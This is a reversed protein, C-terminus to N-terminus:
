RNTKVSDDITQLVNSINQGPRLGKRTYGEVLMSKVHDVEEPHSQFYNSNVWPRPVAVPAVVFSNQNSVIVMQNTLSARPPRNTIAQELLAQLHMMNSRSQEMRAAANTDQGFVAGAAELMLAILGIFKM